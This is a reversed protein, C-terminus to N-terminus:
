HPLIYTCMLPSHLRISFNQCHLCETAYFLPRQRVQLLPTTDQLLM